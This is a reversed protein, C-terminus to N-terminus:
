CREIGRTVYILMQVPISM